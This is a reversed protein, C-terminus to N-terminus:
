WSGAVSHGAQGVDTRHHLSSEDIARSIAVTETETKRRPETEGTETEMRIGAMEKEANKM